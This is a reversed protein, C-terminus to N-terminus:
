NTTENTQQHTVGDDTGGLDDGSGAGGGGGGSGLYPAKSVSEGVDGPTIIRIVLLVALWLVYKHEHDTSREGRCSDLNEM